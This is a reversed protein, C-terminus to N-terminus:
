VTPHLLMPPRGSWYLTVDQGEASAPLVAYILRLGVPVQEPLLQMEGGFVQDGGYSVYSLLVEDSISGISLDGGNWDTLDLILFRAGGPAPRCPEVVGGPPPCVEPVLRTQSVRVPGQSTEIPSTASDLIEEAADGEGFGTTTTAAAADTDDAARTTQSTKDTAASEEGGGGGRLALAATAVVGVLVAVLVAAVLKRRGSRGAGPHAAPGGAETDAEIGLARLGGLIRPMIRGVGGEPVAITTASGIAERWEPQRTTYETYSISILVPIFPKETEHARVVEKTVQFSGLSHPSILVIVASSEEIARSTQVLYSVGPISDVEYCWASYGAERLADAIELAIASDEEVHSVFVTSM